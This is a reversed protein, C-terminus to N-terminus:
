LNGQYNEIFPGFLTCPILIGLGTALDVGLDSVSLPISNLPHVADPADGFTPLSSGTQASAPGHLYLIFILLSAIQLLSLLESRLKWM